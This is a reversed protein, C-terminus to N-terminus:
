FVWMLLKITLAIIAISSCACIILGLYYGSKYSKDKIDKEKM